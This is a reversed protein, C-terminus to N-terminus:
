IYPSTASYHMDYSARMCPTALPVMSIPTMRMPSSGPRFVDIKSCPNIFIRISNKQHRLPYTDSPTRKCHKQTASPGSVAINTNETPPTVSAKRQSKATRLTRAPPFSLSVRKNKLHWDARHHALVMTTVATFRAVCTTVHVVHMSSTNCHVIIVIVFSAVTVFVHRKQVTELVACTSLSTVLRQSNCYAHMHHLTGIPM